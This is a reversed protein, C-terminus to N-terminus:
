GAAPASATRAKSRAPSPPTPWRFPERNIKDHEPAALTAALPLPASDPPPVVALPVTASAEKPDVVEWQVINSSPNPM